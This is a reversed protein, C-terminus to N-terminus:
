NDYKIEDGRALSYLLGVACCSCQQAVGQKYSCEAKLDVTRTVQFPERGAMWQLAPIRLEAVHDVCSIHSM